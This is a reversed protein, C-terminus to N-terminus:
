LINFDRGVNFTAIPIDNMPDRAHPELIMIIANWSESILQGSSNYDSYKENEINLQYGKPITKSLKPFHYKELHSKLFNIIRDHCRLFTGKRTFLMKLVDNINIDSNPEDISRPFCMFCLGKNWGYPLRQLNACGLCNLSKYLKLTEM